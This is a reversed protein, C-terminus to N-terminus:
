TTADALRRHASLILSETEEWGICGDTISVGEKLDARNGTLKQSGPNLNSELMLGVITRNGAARQDIVDNWAVHQRRYDKDSNAHSCDVVLNPSAGAEKLRVAAAKLHEASYNPGSRGGRLILHGWPNGTTNIICTNGDADIGLFSHCGRGAILADIAVQLNGDTGNKYGVPMSLGSSMQRHTPSETTRAGISALTILDAIYQPTIPELMETAAPVGLDAIELLITRALRLGTGIDFTDNLHPDNILGKWGLTTRPKEFYVRMVPVIRDDVQEALRKLRRGYEVASHHDHISCPGVVVFMRPDDGKLIRKITERSEVVTRNAALSMETEQRLARPAILAVTSRVNLDHTAQLKQEVLM